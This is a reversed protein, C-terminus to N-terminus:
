EAGYVNICLMFGKQLCKPPRTCRNAKGVDWVLMYCLFIGANDLLDIYKNRGYLPYSGYIIVANLKRYNVCLWISGDKNPTLDISDACGTTAAEIVEEQPM